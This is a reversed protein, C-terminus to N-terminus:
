GGTGTNSQASLDRLRALLYDCLEDYTVHIIPLSNVLVKRRRWEWRQQERSSALASSRGVVLLGFYQARRRGFRAEFDDTHAMDDLKWFWDIIQSLGHEFSTSWELTAKQGQRRFISATAAEELEVFGYAKRSSDGVVLDCTFDGFLQYQYALLDSRVLDGSLSGLYAALQRHSEFFPKIDRNEELDTRAALLDRLALAERLCQHHDFAISLFEKV